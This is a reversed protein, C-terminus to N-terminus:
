GDVDIFAIRHPPYHRASGEILERVGFEVIRDITARITEPPASVEIKRGDDLVVTLM